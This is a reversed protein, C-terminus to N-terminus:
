QARKRKGKVWPHMAALFDKGKKRRISMYKPGALTGHVMPDIWLVETMSTFFCLFLFVWILELCLMKMGAKGLVNNIDKKTAQATLTLYEAVM